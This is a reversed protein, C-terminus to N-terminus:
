SEFFSGLVMDNADYEEVGQQFGVWSTTDEQLSFGSVVDDDYFDLEGNCHVHGGGHGVVGSEMEHISWSEDTQGAAPYSEIQLEESEGYFNPDSEDARWAEPWDNWTEEWEEIEDRLDYFVSDNSSSEWDRELMELTEEDESSWYPLFSERLIRAIVSQGSKEAYLVAKVVQERHQYATSAGHALLLDVVDKRGHEAAGQLATRGHKAAGAAHPDASQSILYEVMPIFGQISAIQLATAGSDMAAPANVKAGANVLLTVLDMNQMEVAHQLATRPLVSAAEWSYPKNPPASSFLQCPSLSMADIMTRENLLFRVTSVNERYVAVELATPCWDPRDDHNLIHPWHELRKLRQLISLHGQSSAILVTWSDPQYNLELLQDVIEQAATEPVIMAAATLPSCRMNPDDMRCYKIWVGLRSSNQEDIAADEPVHDSGTMFVEKLLFLPILGSTRLDEQSSGILIRLIDARGARAAMNIATSEWDEHSKSVTRRSIFTNLDNMILSDVHQDRQWYDWRKASLYFIEDKSIVRAIMYCLAESDYVDPCDNLIHRVVEPCAFAIILRVISVDTIRPESSRVDLVLKTQISTSLRCVRTEKSTRNCIMYLFDSPMPTVGFAFLELIMDEDEKQIAGQLVTLGNRHLATAQGPAKALLAGIFHRFRRLNEEATEKSRNNKMSNILLIEAGTLECNASMLYAASIRNSERIAFELATTAWYGAKDSFTDCEIDEPCTRHNIDAGHELLLDM